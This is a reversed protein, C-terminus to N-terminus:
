WRVEFNKYGEEDAEKVEVKEVRAAPTGKSCWEELQKLADPEGEAHIEVSGDDINRVWGKICLEDAIRKAEARFFVGHVSGTISLRRATMTCLTDCESTLSLIMPSM